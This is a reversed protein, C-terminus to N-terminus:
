ENSGRAGLRDVVFQNAEVIPRISWWGKRNYQLNNNTITVSPYGYGIQNKNNESNQHVVFESFKSFNQALHLKYILKIRM